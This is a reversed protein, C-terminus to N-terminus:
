YNELYAQGATNDIAEAASHYLTQKTLWFDATWSGALVTSYEPYSTIKIWSIIVIHVPFTKPGLHTSAEM